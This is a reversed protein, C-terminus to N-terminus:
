SPTAPLPEARVGTKWYASPGWNAAVVATGRREFLFSFARFSPAHHPLDRRGMNCRHPNGTRSSPSRIAPGSRSRAKPGPIAGSTHPRTPLRIDLPPPAPLPRGSAANTLTDVAFMTLVRPRYGAFAGITASAFAGVGSAVDLHFSSSFSVMGGTHHLYTRGGSALHM